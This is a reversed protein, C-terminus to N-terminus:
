SKKKGKLHNSNSKAYETKIREYERLTLKPYHSKEKKSKSSMYWLASWMEHSQPYIKVLLMHCFLHERATLKVINSQKDKWLPFLSKPMIHHKEYYEGNGKKRLGLKEESKAHEIILMYIHRYNM